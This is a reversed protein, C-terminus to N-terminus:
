VPATVGAHRLQCRVQRTFLHNGTRTRADARYRHLDPPPKHERRTRGVQGWPYRSKGVIHRRDRGPANNLGIGFCGSRVRPVDHFSRSAM